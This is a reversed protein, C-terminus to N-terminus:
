APWIPPPNFSLGTMYYCQRLYQRAKLQARIREATGKARWSHWKQALGLRGFYIARRLTLLRSRRGAPMRYIELYAQSHGIGDVLRLLYAHELRREPIFHRLKLGPVYWLEYGSLCLRCCMETDGGSSLSKGQRDVLLFPREFVALTPIRRVALGAGVPTWWPSDKVCMPQDGQDSIALYEEVMGFWPPPPNDFTGLCRGGAAGAKPNQQFFEAVTAIYHPDLFNDDDVFVVVEGRAEQLGRHRAPTLGLKQEVVIRVSDIVPPLTFDTPLTVPPSSANDIVILETQGPVNQQASLAALCRRLIDWSPNHTCIVISIM